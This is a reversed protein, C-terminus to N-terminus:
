AKSRSKSSRRPDADAYLADKLDGIASHVAGKAKDAKGKAELGKDGTVKGATAKIVGKVKDAAGKVHKKDMICSWRLKTNALNRAAAARDGLTEPM